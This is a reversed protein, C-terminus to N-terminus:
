IHDLVKKLCFFDNGIVELFNDLPYPYTGFLQTGAPLRACIM